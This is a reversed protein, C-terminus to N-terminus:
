HGWKDDDTSSERGSSTQQMPLGEEEDDKWQTESESHNNIEKEEDVEKDQKEDVKNGEADNVEKGEEANVGEWDEWEDDDNEGIHGDEVVDVGVLRSPSLTIHADSQFLRVTVSGDLNM